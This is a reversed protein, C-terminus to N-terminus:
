RLRGGGFLPRGGSLIGTADLLWVVVILVLVVTIIMKAPQPIYTQVLWLILSLVVVTVLLGVLTV